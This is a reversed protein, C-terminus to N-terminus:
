MFRDRYSQNWNVPESELGTNNMNEPQTIEPTPQDPPKTTEAAKEADKKERKEEDYEKANEEKLATKIGRYAGVPISAATNAVRKAANKTKRKTAVYAKKGLEVTKDGTEKVSRQTKRFNKTLLNWRKSKSKLAELIPVPNKIKPNNVEINNIEIIKFTDKLTQDTFLNKTKEPDQEDLISQIFDENTKIKVIIEM